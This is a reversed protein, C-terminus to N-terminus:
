RPGVKLRPVYRKPRGAGDVDVIGRRTVRFNSGILFLQGRKKGACLLPRSGPAFEHEYPTFKGGHTTDYAILRVTGMVMLAKPWEIPIRRSRGPRTERFDKWLERAARTEKKVRGM